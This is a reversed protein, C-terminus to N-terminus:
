STPESEPTLTQHLNGHFNRTTQYIEYRFTRFALTMLLIIYFFVGVYWPRIMTSGSSM